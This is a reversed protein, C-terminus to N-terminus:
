LAVLVPFLWGAGFAIVSAIMGIVGIWPTRKGQIVPIGIAIASLLVGSVPLSLLGLSPIQREAYAFRGGELVPVHMKQYWGDPTQGQAHLVSIWVMGGSLGLAILGLFISSIIFGKPKEEFRGADLRRVIGMPDDSPPVPTNPQKATKAM